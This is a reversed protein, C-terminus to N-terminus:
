ILFSFRMVKRGSRKHEVVSQLLNYVGSIFGFQKSVM